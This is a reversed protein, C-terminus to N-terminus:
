PLLRGDDGTSSTGTFGNEQAYRVLEASSKLGLKRLLLFRQKEVGDVSIGLLAAAEAISHPAGLIALVECDHASLIKDFSQHDSVRAARARRFEASFWVRGAEVATIAEKLAAVSNTNKDVFGNVRAREVALITFRDCRSSLVIIKLRPATERVREIVGFGDLSPLRLDLLLLDPSTARVMEVARLGDDAEGVVAHGLEAVCVRRLVERFMLHDEVIAIKLLLYADRTLFRPQSFCALM